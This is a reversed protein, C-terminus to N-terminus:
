GAPLEVVFATGTGPGDSRAAITGGHARILTRAINLGIGTGPHQHDLRTYRGFVTDLDEQPIGTGTDAVTLRGSRAPGPGPVPEVRLEVSGGAPTHTLANGVLNTVVQTLRDRDGPVTVPEGGVRLEVESQAFRPRWREAVATALVLLDVPESRLELAGEEGRALVSLDETLRRLRDAEEAVSAFTEPGPPLIGDILGEMSGQITTLPNRLEHALDSIMRSRTRDTAELAAGLRNVSVALDALEVEPPVEVRVDHHGDALRATARRMGELRRVLARSAFWAVALAVAIGAVAAVAAGITVSRDLSDAVATADALPNASSTTAAGPARQGSRGGPGAGARLRRDFLEPTLLRVTVFGVGAVVAIVLLHSALLVTRVSRRGSTPEVPEPEAATASM